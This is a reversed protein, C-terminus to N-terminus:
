RTGRLEDLQYGTSTCGQARAAAAPRFRVLRTGTYGTAKGHSDATVHLTAFEETLEGRAHVSACSAPYTLLCDCETAWRGHYSTAGAPQFTARFITGPHDNSPHSMATTCGGSGCEPVFSWPQVWQMGLGGANAVAVERDTTHFTGELRPAPGREAGGVLDRVRAELGLVVRLEVQLTAAEDARGTDAAITLLFYEARGSFVSVVDYLVPHAAGPWTVVTRAAFQHDALEPFPLSTARVIHAGRKHVSKVMQQELCILSGSRPHNRQWDLEAMAPRALLDIQSYLYAGAVEYKVAADGTVTLGALNDPPVGKCTTTDPSRDAKTAGGKWALSPLDGRFNAVRKALAIDHANIAFHYNPASASAGGACAFIVCAVATAVQAIRV